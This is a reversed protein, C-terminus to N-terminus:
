AVAPLREAIAELQEVSLDEARATPEIGSPWPFTRGLIAGIQKRRQGFLTHAASALRAADRTLPEERPVIAVMASAVDPRPWFCEAPLKAILSVHAAAGAVVGLPGYDKSGPAALLRDAVERQITVYQGLCRPGQTDRGEAAAEDIVPVEQTARREAAAEDIVPPTCSSLSGTRNTLLAMMLPTAAGYPLNAVLKFARGGLAAIVARSIEHKSELCDGEILTFRGLATGDFDAKRSRHEENGLTERLLKALGPDLECAVVDCGRSLLETTLTGTGPGVELVLDGASAGSSDVLKRVLNGDILFNQGLRHRPALGHTELLERIESLTQPV